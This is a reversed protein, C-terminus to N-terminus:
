CSICLWHSMPNKWQVCAFLFAEPKLNLVVYLQFPKKGSVLICVAVDVSFGLQKRWSRELQDRAIAPLNACCEALEREGEASCVSTVDACCQGCTGLWAPSGAGGPAHWLM